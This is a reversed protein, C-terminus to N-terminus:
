KKWNSHEMYRNGCIYNNSGTSRIAKLEWSETSTGPTQDIYHVHVTVITNAPITVSGAEVLVGARYLRLGMQQAGGANGIEATAWVRLTGNNPTFNVPGLVSTETGGIGTIFGTNFTAVVNTVQNNLIKATIIVNDVMLSSTNIAGTTIKGAIISGDVILDANAARRVNLGWVYIQNQSQGAANTGRRVRINMYGSGAPATVVQTHITTALTNEDFIYTEIQSESLLTGDPGLWVAFVGISGKAIGGSITRTYFSVAYDEGGKIQWPQTSKAEGRFANNGLGTVNETSQLVRLANVNFSNTGGATGFPNNIISFVGTLSWSSADNFDPDPVLNTFDAVVLRSSTITNAVLRDGTITGAAIQTATITGSAINSAVITGAAIQTSTITGSAIQTATITGTAIQTATITGTAIKAATITGAAIETATITGALIDAATITNAAIETTTITSAAIQAATITNGVINGAAITANAIQTGTITAAVIQAATITTNAIQTATITANAVKAAVVALNAINATQVADNAIISSTVAGVAMKATTVAADALKLSTVADNMLKSATVADDAIKSNIVSNISLDDSILQVDDTTVAEWATEDAKQGSPRVFIGQAEYISNPKFPGGPLVTSYPATYPIELDFFPDTEGFVRVYVHVHSVDPVDTDYTVRITPIRPRGQDDNVTEATVVWDDMALVSPPITDVPGDIETVFDTGPNWNYDSPDVEVVQVMVDLNAKDVYGDIRFLKNIYGNRDSNVRLVDGPELGWFEPGLTWVHRRERQAEALASKLLRQVQARYPVMDLVTSAMLRRNGAREELDTRLVPPSVKDLWGTNPNPYTGSIGTITDALTLFPTFTQEETSIIDADSITAVYAGPEGLIVKYIGGRSVLRGQMATLLSEITKSVQTSVLLEGGARYTPETGGGPKSIAAQAKEIKTVWDARPLQADSIGQAGYVWEGEYRIGRLVNYLQVAPNHDGLGGWTSDDGDDQSGDSPDFLPMGSSMEFKIKPLGGTKFVPKEENDKRVPARATVIAYVIGYGVRSSEYPRATSSVDSVLFSDATTQTGDYFKVWLHDVGSKRYQSVPYGRDAHPEATLMTASKGDVFIRGLTQGPMDSIAIVQTAFQNAKGWTNYYVLSGATAYMGVGVSRPTGDGSRLDILTGTIAPQEQGALSKAIASLGLGALLALGGSTVGAIATFALTGTAASGLLATAVSAGIASFVAM